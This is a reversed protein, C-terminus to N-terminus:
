YLWSIINYYLKNREEKGFPSEGWKVEDCYDNHYAFLTFAVKKGYSLGIRRQKTSSM